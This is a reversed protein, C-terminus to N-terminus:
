KVMIEQKILIIQMFLLSQESNLTKQQRISPQLSVRQNVEGAAVFAIEHIITM